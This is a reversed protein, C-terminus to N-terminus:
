MYLCVVDWLGLFIFLTFNTIFFIGLSHGDWSTANFGSSLFHLFIGCSKSQKSSTTWWILNLPHLPFLHSICGLSWSFRKVQAVVVMSWHPTYELSNLISIRSLVAIQSIRGSTGSSGLMYSFFCSFHHLVTIVVKFLANKKWKFHFFLRIYSLFAFMFSFCLHHM